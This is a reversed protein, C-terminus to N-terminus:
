SLLNEMEAGSPATATEGSPVFEPVEAFESSPDSGGLVDDDAIKQLSVLGLGVGKVSGAMPPDFCYLRLRALCWMGSYIEDRNAPDIPQALRDFVPIPFQSSADIYYGNESFGAYKGNLRSQKKLPFHLVPKGYEDKQQMKQAGFKQTGERMVGKLIPGIDMKEPIILIAGWKDNDTPKIKKKPKDLNAFSIRVPGTMFQNRPKGAADVIERCPYQNLLFSLRAQDM